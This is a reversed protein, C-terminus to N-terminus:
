VEEGPLVFGHVTNDSFYLWIVSQPGESGATKAFRTRKITKGTIQELTCKPYVTM